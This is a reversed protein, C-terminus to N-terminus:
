ESRKSRLAQGMLDAIRYTDRAGLLGFQVGFSESGVWRVTASLRSLDSAGPLQAVVTLKAGFGPLDASEIRLGALSIDTVIASFVLDGEVECSVPIRVRVRLRARKDPM